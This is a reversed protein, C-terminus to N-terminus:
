KLVKKKLRIGIAEIGIFNKIEDLIENISRKWNDQNSLISLIKNSLEQKRELKKRETINRINCQIVKINNALYVNSIFEVETIKGNTGQVPM